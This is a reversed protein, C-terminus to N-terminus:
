GFLKEGLGKLLADLSKVPVPLGAYKCIYLTGAAAVLFLVTALEAWRKKRILPVGDVIFVVLIALVIM